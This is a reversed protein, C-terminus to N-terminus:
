GDDDRPLTTVQERFPVADGETNARARKRSRPSGDENDSDGEIDADADTNDVAQTNDPEEDAAEPEIRRAKGKGKVKEQKVTPQVENVGNPLAANEKLSDTDRDIDARTRRAM